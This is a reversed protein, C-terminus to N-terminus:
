RGDAAKRIADTVHVPLPLALALKETSDSKNMMTALEADSPAFHAVAATAAAAASTAAADM